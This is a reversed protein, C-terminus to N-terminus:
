VVGWVSNRATSRTELCVFESIFYVDWGVWGQAQRVRGRSMRGAGAGTWGSGIGSDTITPWPPGAYTLHVGGCYAATAQTSVPSSTRRRAVCAFGVGPLRGRRTVNAQPAAGIGTGCGVRCLQMTASSSPSSGRRGGTRGPRVEKRGALASAYMSRASIRAYALFPAPRILCSRAEAVGLDSGM